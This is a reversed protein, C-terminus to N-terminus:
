GGIESPMLRDALEDPATVLAYLGHHLAIYKWHRDGVNPMPEDGEWKPKFREVFQILLDELVGEEGPPISITLRKRPPGSPGDHTKLPRDCTPCREADPM